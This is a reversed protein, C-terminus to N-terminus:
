KKVVNSGTVQVKHKTIRYQLCMGNEPQIYQSASLACSLKTPNLQKNAM